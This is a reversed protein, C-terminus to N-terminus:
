LSKLDRLEDNGDYVNCLACPCRKGNRFDRKISVNICKIIYKELPTRDHLNLLHLLYNESSNFCVLCIDCTIVREDKHIERLEETPFTKSCVDCEIVYSPNHEEEKHISLERENEFVEHCLENSAKRSLISNEMNDPSAVSTKLDVGSDGLSNQYSCNKTKTQAPTSTYTPLSSEEEAPITLISKNENKHLGNLIEINKEVEAIRESAELFSIRLSSIEKELELNKSVLLDLDKNTRNVSLSQQLFNGSKDKTISKKLYIVATFPTVKMQFNLSSSRIQHLIDDFKEAAMNSFVLDMNKKAGTNVM